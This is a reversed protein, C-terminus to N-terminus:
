DFIIVFWLSIIQQSHLHTKTLKRTFSFNHAKNHQAFISVSAQLIVFSFGSAHSVDCSDQTHQTFRSILIGANEITTMGCFSSFSHLHSRIKDRCMWPPVQYVFYKIEAQGSMMARGQKAYVLLKKLTTYQIPIKRDTDTPIEQYKGYRKIPGYGFVQCGNAELSIDVKQVYYSLFQGTQCGLSIVCVSLQSRTSEM